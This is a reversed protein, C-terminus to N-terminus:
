VPVGPKPRFDMADADEGAFDPARLYQWGTMHRRERIVSYDGMHQILSPKHCYETFEKAKLITTVGYDAGSYARPNENGLAPLGELVARASGNDFVLGVAGRGRQDSQYWGAVGNCLVNNRRCTYLNLWARGPWPCSELYQRLNRCALLDDEFMAYREARPNRAYLEALGLYWNLNGGIKGMRPTFIKSAYAAADDLNDVFLRIDGFGANDLSALTHQLLNGRRVPVTTVGCAWRLGAGNVAAQGNTPPIPVKLRVNGKCGGCPVIRQGNRNILAKRTRPHTRWLRCTRCDASPTALDHGCILEM